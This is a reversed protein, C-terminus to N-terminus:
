EPYICRIRDVGSGGGTILPVHELILSSTDLGYWRVKSGAVRRIAYKTHLILEDLNSLETKTTVSKRIICFKFTGVTSPGYISYKKDQPPLEGAAQLDQVIQRLYVNVRPSCKFGLNLTIRYIFDTGYTEVEYTMTDPENLVNVSVFWYAEARKADKDLISYLIDRDMFDSNRKGELYVLNHTLLPISEDRHLRDLNSIHDQINLRISYKRELQTGRYWVVMLLLLVLTLIVTVYGGHAFKGLSSLFFVAEIMGFVVLVLGSLVPKKRLKALYVTILLTTMLMTVTIALGYASEM